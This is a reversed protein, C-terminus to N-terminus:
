KVQGFLNIKIVWLIDKLAALSSKFSYKINYPFPFALLYFNFFSIPNAMYKKSFYILFFAKIKYSNTNALGTTDPDYYIKFEPDCVLKLGKRNARITFEYDSLYHPLLFPYFGGTKIFDNVNMFLGRTSLCNIEEPAHADVIFNEKFNYNLGVDTTKGSKYDVASATILSGPNKKLLLIGKELFDTDLISDDNVILVNDASHKKNKKIWDYGQQLSGAWWWNGNGKIVITSPLLKIVEADTGDTSGDDILILQYNLYSQRM